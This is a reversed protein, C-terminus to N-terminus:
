RKVPDTKLVSLPFHQLSMRCNPSASAVAGVDDAGLGIDTLFYVKDAIAVPVETSAESPVYFDTFSVSLGRGDAKVVAEKRTWKGYFSFQKAEQVSLANWERLENPTLVSPALEMVDKSLDVHEADIGVEGERSLTILIIGHSHSLNFWLRSGMEALMPKGYDNERFSIDLPSIELNNALLVRLCSRGVVFEDRVRGPLRRDARLKEDVSLYHHYLQLCSNSDPLDIRWVQIEHSQLAPLDDVFKWNDLAVGPIM